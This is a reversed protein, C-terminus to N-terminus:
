YIRGVSNLKQERCRREEEVEISRITSQLSSIQNELNSIRRKLDVIAQQLEQIKRRTSTKVKALGSTASKYEKGSFIGTMDSVYKSIMKPQRHVDVLKYLSHKREQQEEDFKKEANQLSRELELLEEIQKTKIYIEENCEHIQRQCSNISSYAESKTM